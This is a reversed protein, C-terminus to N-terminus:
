SKEKNLEDLREHESKVLEELEEAMGLHKAFERCADDINGKIFVDRYNEAKDSVTDVFDGVLERNILVRPCDDNVISHLHGFPQVKLHFM